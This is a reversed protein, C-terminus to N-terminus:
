EDATKCESEWTESRLDWHSSIKQTKTQKMNTNAHTHTNNEIYISLKLFPIKVPSFYCSVLYFHEIKWSLSFHIYESIYVNKRTEDLWRGWWVKRHTHIGDAQVCLCEYLTSICGIPPRKLQFVFLFIM